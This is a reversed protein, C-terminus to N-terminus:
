RTAGVDSTAAEGDRCGATDIQIMLAGDLLSIAYSVFQSRRGRCCRGRGMTGVDDRIGKAMRIESEQWHEFSVWRHQGLIGAEVVLFTLSDDHTPFTTHAIVGGIPLRTEEMSEAM